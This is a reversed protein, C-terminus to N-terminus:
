RSVAHPHGVLRCCRGGLLACCCFDQDWPNAKSQEAVPSAQECAALADDHKADLHFLRLGFHLEGEQAALGQLQKRTGQLASVAREHTWAQVSCCDPKSAQSLLQWCGSAVALLAAGTLRTSKLGLGHGASM